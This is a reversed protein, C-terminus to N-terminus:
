SDHEVKLILYWKKNSMRKRTTTLSIAKRAAIQGIGARNIMAMLEEHQIPDSNREEYIEEILKKAANLASMKDDLQELALREQASSSKKPQYQAIADSPSAQFSEGIRVTAIGSEVPTEVHWAVGLKSNNTKIPVLVGFSESGTCMDRQKAKTTCDKIPSKHMLWMCRTRASWAHSGAARDPLHDERKSDKREHHVGLVACGAECIPDVVEEIAKRVLTASNSNQDRCIDIIPDIVFLDFNKAIEFLKERHEKEGFDFRRRYSTPSSLWVIQELDAGMLRLRPRLTDQPDDESSYILTKGIGCATGKINGRSLHAAIWLSVTSKSVGSKGIMMTLKGRPLMGDWLWNIDREAIDSFVTGAKNLYQYPRVSLEGVNGKAELFDAIDGYKSPVRVVNVDRSLVKAVDAIYSEGPDDNDPVLVIPVRKSAVHSWDTKSAAKSGHVSTIAVEDEPLVAQLALACKEGEVIWIKKAGYVLDSQFPQWRVPGAGTYWKSGGGLYQPRFTKCRGGSEDQWDYRLVRHVCTGENQTYEYTDTLTANSPIGGNSRKGESRTRESRKRTTPTANTRADTKSQADESSTRASRTQAVFEEHRDTAFGKTDCVHCGYWGTDQYYYASPHKDDNNHASRNLCRVKWPKERTSVARSRIEAETFGCDNTKTYDSM